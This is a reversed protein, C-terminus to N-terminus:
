HTETKTPEGNALVSRLPGDRLRTTDGTITAGELNLKVDGSLNTFKTAGTIVTGPRLGLALDGAGNTAAVQQVVRWAGDPQETIFVPM